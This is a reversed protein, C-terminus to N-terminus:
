WNLEDREPLQTVMGLAQGRPVITAKHIPLSGAHAASHTAVRRGLGALHDGKTFFAVIAHGGEHYAVQKRQDDDMVRGKREAGMLIKDRAWEFHHMNVAPSSTSSAQITVLMLQGSIVTM